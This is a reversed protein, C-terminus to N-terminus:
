KMYTDMVNNMKSVKSQKNLFDSLGNKIIEMNAKKRTVEKEREPQINKSPSTRRPEVTAESLQQHTVSDDKRNQNDDIKSGTKDGM